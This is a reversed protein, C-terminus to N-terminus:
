QARLTCFVGILLAYIGPVFTLSSITHPFCKHWLSESEPHYRRPTSTGERAHEGYGQLQNVLPQCVTTAQVLLHCHPTKLFPHQWLSFVQARHPCSRSRPSTLHQLLSVQARHLCSCSQPSILQSTLLQQLSVQARCPHSQSRPSMLRQLLSVQARYLCSCSQPSMLRSTLLQPLSAQARCHCSGWQCSPNLCLSPLGTREHQREWLPRVQPRATPPTTILIILTM